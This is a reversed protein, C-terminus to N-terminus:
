TLHTGNVTYLGSASLSTTVNYNFYNLSQNTNYSYVIESSTLSYFPRFYIEVYFGPGLNFTGNSADAYHYQINFPAGVPLSANRVSVLEWVPNRLTILVHASYGSLQSVCTFYSPKSVNQVLLTANQNSITMMLSSNLQTNSSVWSLNGNGETSLCSLRLKSFDNFYNIIPNPLLELDNNLIVVPGSITFLNVM